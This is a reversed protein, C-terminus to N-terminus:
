NKCGRQDSKVVKEAALGGTLGIYDFTRDDLMGTTVNRIKPAVVLRSVFLRKDCM